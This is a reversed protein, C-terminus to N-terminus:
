GLLAEFKAQVDAKSKSGVFKDVVQGDKIFILMTSSGEIVYLHTAGDSSKQTLDLYRDGEYEKAGGKDRIIIGLTTCESSFEITGKTTTDNWSTLVDDMPNTTDIAITGWTKGAIEEFKQFYFQAGGTSVPEHPWIWTLWNNYSEDYNYYHIYVSPNEPIDYAFESVTNEVTQNTNKNESSSDKTKCASAGVIMSGLLFLKLLKKM